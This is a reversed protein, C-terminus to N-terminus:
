YITLEQHRIGRGLSKGTCRMSTFDVLVFYMTVWSIGPRLRIQHATVYLQLDIRTVHTQQNIITMQKEVM